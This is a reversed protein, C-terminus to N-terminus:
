RGLLPRVGQSGNSFGQGSGSGREWDPRIRNRFANQGHDRERDTPDVRGQPHPQGRRLPEQLPCTFPRLYTRCRDYSQGRPLLDRSDQKKACEVDVKDLGIGYKSILQLKPLSKEIVEATIADDGCLFADFDGALELMQQESLPGRQRVIEYGQSDLLEHHKGPTDQFPTTTLLIKKM